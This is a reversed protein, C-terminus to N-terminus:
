KLRRVDGERITVGIEDLYEFVREAEKEDIKNLAFGAHVIVYNGVEADPVFTLCVDKLVGGFEVRGFLQGGMANDIYKNYDLRPLGAM